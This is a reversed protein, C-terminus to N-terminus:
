LYSVFFNSINTKPFNLVKCESEILEGESDIQANILKQDEDVTEDGCSAAFPTTLIWFM